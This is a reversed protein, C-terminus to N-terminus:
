CKLTCWNSLYFVRYHYIHQLNVVMRSLASTYALLPYTTSASEVCTVTSKPRYTITTNCTYWKYQGRRVFQLSSRSTRTTASVISTSPCGDPVWRYLRISNM